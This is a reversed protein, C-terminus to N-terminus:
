KTTVINTEPIYTSAPHYHLDGGGGFDMTPTLSLVPSRMPPLWMLIGAQSWSRYGATQLRLRLQCKKNNAYFHM